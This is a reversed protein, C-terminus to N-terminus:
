NMTEYIKWIVILISMKTSIKCFISKNPLIVKIKCKLLKLIWLIYTLSYLNLVFLQHKHYRCVFKLICICILNRSNWICRKWTMFYLKSFIINVVALFRNTNKTVKLCLIDQKRLITNSSSTAKLLSKADSHFIYWIFTHTM